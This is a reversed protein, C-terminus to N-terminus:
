FHEAARRELPAESNRPRAGIRALKAALFVREPIYLFDSAVHPLKRRSNFVAALINRQGDRKRHTPGAIRGHDHHIFNLQWAESRHRGPHHEELTVVGTEPFMAIMTAVQEAHDM